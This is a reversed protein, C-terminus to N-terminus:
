RGSREKMRERLLPRRERAAEALAMLARRQELDLIKAIEARSELEARAMGARASVVRDIADKVAADDLAPADLLRLLDLNARALDARLDIMAEGQRYSITEIQEVQEPTLKLREVVRPSTWWRDAIDGLDAAAPAIAFALVLLPSLASLLRRM